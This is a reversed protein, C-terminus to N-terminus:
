SANQDGGFKQHWRELEDDLLVIRREGRLYVVLIGLSFDIMCILRSTPDDQRERVEVFRKVIINPQYAATVM